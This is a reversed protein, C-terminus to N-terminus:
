ALSNLWDSVNDIALILQHNAGFINFSEVDKGVVYSHDGVNITFNNDNSEANYDVNWETGTSSLDTINVTDYGAGGNVNINGQQNTMLIDIVDNGAGTHINSNGANPGVIVHDNGTGTNINTHGAGPKVFVSDNGAGTFINGGNTTVHNNGNLHPNSVRNFLNSANRNFNSPISSRYIGTM